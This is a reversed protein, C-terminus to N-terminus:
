GPPSHTTHSCHQLCAINQLMTYLWHLVLTHGRLFVCPCVQNSCSSAAVSVCRESAQVIGTLQSQSSELMTDCAREIRSRLEKHAANAARQLVEVAAKSHAGYLTNELQKYRELMNNIDKSTAVKLRDFEEVQMSLVLM